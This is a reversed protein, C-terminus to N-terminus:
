CLMYNKLLRSYNVPRDDLEMMHPNLMDAGYRFQVVAQESNRVTNDYQMSLDELAKMLRRAMYGTEATKVATDVLGERGGMTHFFFETAILGSYFSNAVFGKSSACLSGRKFHPLTRNDFGNAIRQGAVSQQGLCAIMQSINLASGKAGSEAMILATNSPLLEKMAEDGCTQRIKGLLGNADSELSQLANCGPKLKILGSEYQAIHEDLGTVGTTVISEKINNLHKPPTVDEIGISFGYDCLFRSSLKALRNMITVAKEHGQDQDRILAYFLGSKSEGGLTKKGIAGSVLEGQHFCVYGDKACMYKDKGSYFREKTEFNLRSPIIGEARVMLSILQRGTWLRRPKFIAPPPIVIHSQADSFFGALRCFEERTFFLDRRTILYSCSLFDQTAAVLPEGNRPTVLNKSIAMLEAAEVRAEETQPLHLNMEDGDFDANYPACACVNFRFTRFPMVKVRHAMISMKHLSPQRNFMVVDGNKMHREVIDGIKISKAVEERNAKDLYALLRAKPIGKASSSTKRVLNAGPWIDHGNKIMEQLMAKNHEFVREPYTMVKAVHEPIGVQQVALNPDPSIVTRGSFDVRKGSLNGRFRGQKGKLRQCLGRISRNGTIARPIGPTEGNIFQAVLIQLYEWDEACNRLQSGKNMTESLAHNVYIIEQLKVTLDDETTGGGAVDVPVSPRIPVPPVPVSWMILSEPRGYSEDMWLLMADEPTIQCLLEYVKLPHLHEVGGKILHTSVDQWKKREKKGGGDDEGKLLVMKDVKDNILNVKHQDIPLLDPAKARYKEHVIKFVGGTIKKVVGNSTECHPCRRARKCLDIIRKFHMARTLANVEDENRNSKTIIRLYKDRDAESLMIRSCTKCICQLLTITHKFYGTHFVPLRLKIFGFHGVCEALKKNCTQCTTFKDSIGLRPDLCGNIAPTRDVQNTLDKNSVEFEAAREMEEKMLTGFQIRAIRKPATNYSVPKKKEFSDKEKKKEM